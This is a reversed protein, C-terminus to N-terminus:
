LFRPRRVPRLWHFVSWRASTLGDFMLNARFGVAGSGPAHRHRSFGSPKSFCRLRGLVAGRRLARRVARLLDQAQVLFRARVMECAFETLLREHAPLVRGHSLLVARMWGALKHPLHQPTSPAFLLLRGTVPDQAVFGPACDVLGLSPVTTAESLRDHRLEITYSGSHWVHDERGVMFGSERLSATSGHYACTM